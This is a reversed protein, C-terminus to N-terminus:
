LKELDVAVVDPLNAHDAVTPDVIEEMIGLM